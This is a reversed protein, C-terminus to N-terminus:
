YSDMYIRIQIWLRPLLYAYNAINPMPMMSIRYREADSDLNGHLHRDLGPAMYPDSNADFVLDNRM